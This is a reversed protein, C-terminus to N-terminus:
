ALMATLIEYIGDEENTYKTVYKASDKVIADANAMAYGNGAAVLMPIDNESDGAAYSDEIPLQLHECLYTLARGKGSNAPILELYGKGSFITQIYNGYEREVAEKFPVLAPSGELSISLMKYPPKSLASALDPAYIIPMKIRSRYSNIEANEEKCVITDDTYTQIHVQMKEALAQLKPIYDLAVRKEYITEQKNCDYIQGGNNSIIYAYPFHIDFSELYAYMPQIGGLPRGSSLILGHGAQALERLKEALRESITGDGKILTGDIDCFLLKM